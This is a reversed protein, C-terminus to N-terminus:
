ASASAAGAGAAGTQRPKQYTALFAKVAMAVVHGIRAEPPPGAANFLM